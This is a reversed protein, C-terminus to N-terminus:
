GAPWLRQRLDALLEESRDHFTAEAHSFTEVLAQLPDPDTAAFIAPVAFSPRHIPLEPRHPANDDFGTVRWEVSVTADTADAYLLPFVSEHDTFPEPLPLGQDLADLAPRAWDVRDLEAIEFARRALWRAAARQTDPDLAEFADLMDRHAQAVALVNGGLERLRPSPRRGGWQRKEYEALMQEHERREQEARARAEAAREEASPLRVTQAERHWYAAIASTQRVIEDPAPDAPWLALLYRDITAEDMLTDQGHAEDMRNACFRARLSGAAPLTVDFWDQFSSLSLERQQATFPVEVVEEWSTDLDPATDHWQVVFPVRGTHLGTVMSLVGPFAAGCLGNRQGARTEMLEPLDEVSSLWIFGYHVPVEADFLVTM